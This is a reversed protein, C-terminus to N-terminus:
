DWLLYFGFIEEDDYISPIGSLVGNSLVYQKQIDYSSIFELAKIAAEKHEPSIFSNIGVNHGGIVSGSIGEKVGPLPTIKMYPLNFFWFKMFVYKGDMFRDFTYDDGCQFEYDLSLENKIKKMMNLADIAEKSPFEPYDADVSKRFTYIFEYLSCTGSEIDTKILEEWTKPATINYKNLYDYNSYLVTFDVNMPWKDEGYVCSKSAIGPKYIDILKDLITGKLNLLYPGFRTTFINDFFIIDYKDSEKRFLSELTEEYNIVSVTSNLDSIYNLNIKIDLNNDKAYTNFQQIIPLYM